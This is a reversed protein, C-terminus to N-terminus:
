RNITIFRRIEVDQPPISISAVQGFQHIHAERALVVAFSLDCSKDAFIPCPLIKQVTEPPRSIGDICRGTAIGQGVGSGGAALGVGLVYSARPVQRDHSM